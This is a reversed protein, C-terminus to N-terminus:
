KIKINIISINQIFIKSKFKILIKLYLNKINNIKMILIKTNKKMQQLMEQLM